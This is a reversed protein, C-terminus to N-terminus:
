FKARLGVFFTRPLGPRYEIDPDGVQNSTYTSYRRDTLNMVRGYVEVRETVDYGTRFNLLNHGGYEATNTEDTYYKGMHEWELEFSTKPLYRPTYHLASNGLTKPAKGVDYGAYNIEQAPFGIIATYDKYEQNSYSWATRFGWEPTVQGYLSLEVGQHETEGANTVKRDNGDIYSVIDDQVIMHYVATDYHLWDFFKGRLGIEFSDTTVPSLETTNTTSGARFLQTASPVRFGHRYNAYIDHEQTLTYVAGLKPSFHDFSLSQSDPRLWNRFGISEPISAGLRDEYDVYFYDYRLGTDLRLKQTAQWEGHVYPSISSQNAEFDYNRRGTHRYDTFIGGSQLATIQREEYTSPTYDMDVGTIFLVNWDPLNRRYKALMGYSQFTDIRVNPDYSLMWSPMLEMRNHRFYPTLTFLNESDPEYNFETSFRLADVERQGMDGHTLNRKPNHYYDDAELGSASAQDVHTFSLITKLTTYDGLIGDLRATASQRSYGSEERYGDNETVNLDLRIGLDDNIPSGSSMLLRKWGYSGYEPNVTTEPEPPAPRTVSNIIGGIADSGYLASGPGKIVEIREAQPLNIEYLANHNFFGTPRTPIGDELYLYVGSTTIPQRISTMHGEGGLNNVHVGAIRNLVEAPHSPSIREIEESTVADISESVERKSKKEKTATVVVADLQTIPEEAIATTSFMSSACLAGLLHKSTIVPM